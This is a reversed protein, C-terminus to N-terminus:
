PPAGMEPFRWKSNHGFDGIVDMGKVWGVDSCRLSWVDEDEEADGASGTSGTSGTSGQTRRSRGKPGKPAKPGKPNERLAAITKLMAEMEMALETPNGAVGDFKFM